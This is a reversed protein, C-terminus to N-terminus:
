YANIDKLSAKKTKSPDLTLPYNTLDFVKADTFDGIIVDHDYHM